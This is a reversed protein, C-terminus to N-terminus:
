LSKEKLMLYIFYPVGILSITIGAPIEIPSFLNRSVSDAVVIIIMSILISVPLYHKHKTGVMSKAIHPGLLGLLQYKRCCSNCRRCTHNCLMLIAKTRKGVSVGLSIMLEDKLQLIDLTKHHYMVLGTVIIVIPLISLAYIWGSGWLSGSTWVLVRNYDQTSGQFTLFMICANIAINVGIGTLLLRQPHIDRSSSIFYILGASLFAGLLAIIPLIMISANGMAQYYLSGQSFIFLVAALSAGANIGIIGADAM